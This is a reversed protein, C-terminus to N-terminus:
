IHILSLDVLKPTYYIGPMLMAATADERAKVIGVIKVDEGNRVLNKMYTSDDTKDKWLDYTEDYTYYDTSSVLKFETNLIDEYSYDEMIEPIDVEEERSFQDVMKDLEEPERLGLTYLMFDGIGGNPTLVLVCENYARDRICM